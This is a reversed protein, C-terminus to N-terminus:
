RCLNTQLAKDVDKLEIDHRRRRTDQRSAEIISRMSDRRM